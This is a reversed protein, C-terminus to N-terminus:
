RQFQTKNVNTAPDSRSIVLSFIINTYSVSDIPLPHLSLNEFTFDLM